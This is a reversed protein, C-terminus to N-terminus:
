NTSADTKIPNQKFHSEMELSTPDVKSDEILQFTDAVTPVIMAHTIRGMYKSTNEQEFSFENRHKDFGSCTAWQWEGGDTVLVRAGEKIFYTPQQVEVVPFTAWECTPIFQEENNKEKKAKYNAQLVKAISM